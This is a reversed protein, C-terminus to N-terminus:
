GSTPQRLRSAVIALELSLIGSKHPKRLKLIQSLESIRARVFMTARQRLQRCIVEADNSFRWWFERRYKATSYEGEIQLREPKVKEEVIRLCEPFENASRGAVAPGALPWDRFNIVYREPQDGVLTNLESGNLYPQIVEASKPASALLEKMEEETLLFGQGYIKVGTGALGRNVELVRPERLDDVDKDLRASIGKVLEEDISNQGAWLGKYVWPVIYQVQATGPWRTSTRGRIICGEHSTIHGLGVAM